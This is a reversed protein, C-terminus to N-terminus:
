DPFGLEVNSETQTHTNHTHWTHHTHHGRIPWRFLQVTVTLTYLQVTCTYVCYPCLRPVVYNHISCSNQCSCWCQMTGRSHGDWPRCKKIFSSSEVFWLGFSKPLFILTWLNQPEFVNSKQRIQLGSGVVRQDLNKLVSKKKSWCDKQSKENQEFFKWIM